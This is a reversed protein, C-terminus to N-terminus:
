LEFIEISPPSWIIIIINAYRYLQNIMYKWKLDQMAKQVWILKSPRFIYYITKTTTMQNIQTKYEVNLKKISIAYSTQLNCLNPM